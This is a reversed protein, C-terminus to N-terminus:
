ADEFNIFNLCHKFKVSSLSKTFMDAPNEKTSVKEVKVKKSEIVDRIFHLKVDIHKTREHYIQHNALPVKVTVTFQSM